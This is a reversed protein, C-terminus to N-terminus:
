ESDDGARTKPQGWELVKYLVPDVPPAGAARNLKHGKEVFYTYPVGHKPQVRVMYLDGGRYYQEILKGEHERVKVTPAPEGRADKDTAGPLAPIPIAMGDAASTASAPTSSSAVPTAGPDDMSPPPLAKWTTAPAAQAHVPLAAMLGLGLVSVCVVLIKM